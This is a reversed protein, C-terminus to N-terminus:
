RLSTSVTGRTFPSKAQTMKAMKSKRPGLLARSKKKPPPYFAIQFNQWQQWLWRNEAPSLSMTKWVHSTAKQKCNLAEQKCHSSHKPAEKSVIPTKQPPKEAQLQLKKAQLQLAKKSASSASKAQLQLAEKSAISAGKKCVNSASLTKNVTPFEFQWPRAKQTCPASLCFSDARSRAGLLMPLRKRHSLAGQEAHRRLIQAKYTSNQGVKWTFDQPPFSKSKCNSSKLKCNDSFDERGYFYFRCKGGGGWFGWFVRFKISM